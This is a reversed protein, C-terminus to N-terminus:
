CNTNSRLHTRGNRQGRWITKLRDQEKNQQQDVDSVFLHFTPSVRYRGSKFLVLFRGGQWKVMREGKRGQWRVVRAGKGGQWKRVVRRELGGKMVQWTVARWSRWGQRRVIRGSIGGKGGKWCAERGSKGCRGLEGGVLREWGGVVKRM